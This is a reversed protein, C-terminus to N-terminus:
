GIYVRVHEGGQVENVNVIVPEKSSFGTSLFELIEDVDAQNLGEISHGFNRLLWGALGLPLPIGFTINHPWEHHAQEVNVYLWHATRSGTFLALFLVGLLFSVLACYFWFGYNSTNVLSYLWYASLVVTSVGIVLLVHWLHQAKNAIEEFDNADVSKTGSGSGFITPPIPIVEGESAQRELAQILKLAEQPSIKGDEVMKLIQMQEKSSMM